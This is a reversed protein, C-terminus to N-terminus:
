FGNPAVTSGGYNLSEVIRVVQEPGTFNAM